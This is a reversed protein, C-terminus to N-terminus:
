TGEKVEEAWCDHCWAGGADWAGEAHAVDRTPGIDIELEDIYGGESNMIERGCGRCVVIWGMDVVAQMPVEGADAYKDCEPRRRVRMDIFEGGMQGDPTEHWAKVRAAQANAAFVFFGWDHEYRWQAWYAKVDTM